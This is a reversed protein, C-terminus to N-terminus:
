KQLVLKRMMRQGNVLVEMFYIGNTLNQGSFIVQHSGADRTGNFVKKVLSGKTDYLNVVVASSAPITFNIRLEDNFPNPYVNLNVRREIEAAAQMNKGMVYENNMEGVFFPRMMEHDEHSLIHCHWVYAGPLDFKAIVRTVEGPYMIYTDKWGTEGPEPPSPRGILKINSPKGSIPDVTASFKQRNLLQMKVLHLHIPHADVTENYIEWIETANLAPNETVPDHWALKGQEVTGLSPKLRGYEDTAEFLILKRASLSTTLPEIPERLISPLVAKPISTNLPRTVRFQMIRGTTRPDVTKGKPFPAKANNMMTITMGEMGSFDIIIEKREGNGVLLQNSIVPTYLLGLDSAVQVMPQGSSLFLNFFRSDAGNLVRFRYPRPEVELYPWAMGNVLIHDGFMEPMTSNAPGMMNGMNPYYLSGDTTFMRDQIALGIDYAGSPLQNAAQLAMEHPDTIVYFGAMGAYVNLRTIGMAHDHYWITAAEQDNSYHYPSAQGKEFGKGKKTFGPTYWAEPLGDSASETHGGHLHTVIPVGYQQWDPVDKMAWHVSEDIPLLHPLPTGTNDVLQNMWYFNVPMGKQALITPGPYTGNYGWLRTMLPQGTLPDTLGLHQTFQTIEISHTGGTRVDIVSPVPLPYQFQKQKVPDLLLQSASSLYLVTLITASLLKLM